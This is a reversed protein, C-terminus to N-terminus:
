KQSRPYLPATDSIYQIIQLLGAKLQVMKNLLKQMNLIRLTIKVPDTYISKAQNICATLSIYEDDKLDGRLNIVIPLIQMNARLLYMHLEMSDLHKNYNLCVFAGHISKSYQFEIYFARYPLKLISDSPIELKGSSQRLLQKVQDTSITYVKRDKRWSALAALICGNRFNSDYAKPNCNNLLKVAVEVPAYCEAPWFSYGSKENNQHMLDIKDLIDPYKSFYMELFQLLNNEQM